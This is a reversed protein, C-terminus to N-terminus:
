LILGSDVGPLSAFPSCSLLKILVSKLLTELGLGNTLICLDGGLLINVIQQKM